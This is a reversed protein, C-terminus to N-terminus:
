RELNTYLNFPIIYILCGAWLRVVVSRSINGERRATDMQTSKEMTEALSCSQPFILKNALVARSSSSELFVPSHLSQFCFMRLLGWPCGSFVRDCILLCKCGAPHGPVHGWCRPPWTEVLRHCGLLLHSIIPEATNQSFHEKPYLQKKTNGIEGGWRLMGVATSQTVLM